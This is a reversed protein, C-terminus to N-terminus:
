SIGISAVGRKELLIRWEPFYLADIGTKHFCAIADAPTECIPERDNFSTNLLIPQGSLREWTRLLGHFWANSAKTVTHLRASGDFHVVAPLAAIFERRWPVVFSMYPSECDRTFFRGVEERVISPAFPRYWQRHKVKENIIDKMDARRPDALISRNGLARRGSEARGHFISVVAGEGILRAVGEDDCERRSIGVSLWPAIAAEAEERSYSRGLYPSAVSGADRRIRPNGMMHHFVYQSAGISLGGDYPLPPVYVNLGPFWDVIRGM